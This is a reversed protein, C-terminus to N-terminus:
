CRQGVRPGVIEALLQRADSRLYEHQGSNQGLDGQVQALKFTKMHKQGLTEKHLALSDLLLEKAVLLEGKDILGLALAAKAWSTLPFRKQTATERELMLAICSQFCVAARDLEKVVWWCRGINLYNLAWGHHQDARYKDTGQRIELAIQHMKIAEWPNDGALVVGLNMFGNALNPHNVDLLGAKVADERIKLDQAALGALSLGATRAVGVEEAETENHFYLQVTYLDALFLGPKGDFVIGRSNPSSAAVCLGDAIVIVVSVVVIDVVAPGMGRLKLYHKHLSLVHPQFTECTDWREVMHDRAPGHLPFAQRVLSTADEFDSQIHPKQELAVDCVLRHMWAYQSHSQHQDAQEEEEEEHQLYVFSRRSLSLMINKSRILTRLAPVRGDLSVLLQEPIQDPDFLAVTTLVQRSTDNLKSISAALAETLSQSYWPSNSPAVQALDQLDSSPNESSGNSACFLADLSTHSEEIFSVVGELYLPFRDVKEAWAGIQQENLIRRGELRKRFLSVGEASTMPIMQTSQSHGSIAQLAPM